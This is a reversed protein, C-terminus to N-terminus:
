NLLLQSNYWALDKMYDNYKAQNEGAYSRAKDFLTIIAHDVAMAHYIMAHFDSPLIPSTGTTIDDPMYIYDYEYSYTSTPQLTFYLRSNVIDIYCYGDKDLYQRRDSFNVVQYPVYSGSKIVFVVKPSANNDIGVAIDTTQNNEALYSFDSPLAVYPVSTSLTGTKTKKLFEWPKARLIKKYYKNALALEETANLETADDVYQEFAIIIEQGTM